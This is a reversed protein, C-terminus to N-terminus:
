RPQQERLDLHLLQERRSFSDVGLQHSYERHTALKLLETSWQPFVAENNYLNAAIFYREPIDPGSPILEPMDGAPPVFGLSLWYMVLLSATGLGVLQYTKWRTQLHSTCTEGRIASLIGWWARITWGVLWIVAGIFLPITTPFPYAVYLGITWGAGLSMALCMAPDSALGTPGLPENQRPERPHGHIEHEEDIRRYGDAQRLHNIVGLLRAPRYSPCALPIAPADEAEDESQM